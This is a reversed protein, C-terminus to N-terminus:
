PYTITGLKSIVVGTVSTNHTIVLGDILNDLLLDTNLIEPYFGITQTTIVSKINATTARQNLDLVEFLKDLSYKILNKYEQNNLESYIVTFQINYQLEAPAQVIINSYLIGASIAGTDILHNLLNTNDQTEPFPPISGDRMHWININATIQSTEVWARTTGPFELAKNRMNADNNTTIDQSLKVAIRGSLTEDTEENIGGTINTFNVYGTTSLGQLPSLINVAKGNSLNGIEGFTQSEAEVTLTISEINGGGSTKAPISKPYTLTRINLVTAVVNNANFDGDSVNIINVTNGTAISIIDESTEVTIIGLGDSSINAIPISISISEYTDLPDYLINNVGQLTNTENIAIGIITANFTIKGKALGAPLKEVRALTKYTLPNEIFEQQLFLLERQANYMMISIAELLTKLEPNMELSIDRGFITSIKELIQNEGSKYYNQATITM